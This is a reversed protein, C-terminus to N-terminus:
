LRPEYREQVANFLLQLWEGAALRSSKSGNATGCSDQAPIVTTAGMTRHSQLFLGLHM